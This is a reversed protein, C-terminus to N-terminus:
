YVISKMGEMEWSLRRLIWDFYKKVWLKARTGPRTGQVYMRLHLGFLHWQQPTVEPLASSSSQKKTNETM